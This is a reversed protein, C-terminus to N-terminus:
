RANLLMEADCEEDEAENRTPSSCLGNAVKLVDLM